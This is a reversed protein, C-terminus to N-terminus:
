EEWKLYGRKEFTIEAAWRFASACRRNQAAVVRFLYVRLVSFGRNLFRRYASDGALYICHNGVAGGVSGSTRFERMRNKPLWLSV